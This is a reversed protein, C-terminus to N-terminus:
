DGASSHSSNSGAMGEAPSGTLWGATVSSAGSGEPGPRTAKSRSRERWALSVSARL